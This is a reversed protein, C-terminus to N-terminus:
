QLKFNFFFITIIFRGYSFRILKLEEHVVSSLVYVM